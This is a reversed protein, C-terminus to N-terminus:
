ALEAKSLKRRRRRRKESQSVRSLGLDCVRVTIVMHPSSCSYGIREVVMICFSRWEWIKLDILGCCKVGFDPREESESFGRSLKVTELSTTARMLEALGM